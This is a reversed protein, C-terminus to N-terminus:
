LDLLDDAVVGDVHEQLGRVPQHADVERLHLVEMVATDVARVVVAEPERLRRRSRRASRVSHSPIPTNAATSRNTSAAGSKPSGYLVYASPRPVSPSGTPMPVGPCGSPVSSIPRSMSVRAAHPPRCVSAKVSIAVM